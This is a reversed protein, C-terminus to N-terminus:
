HNAGQCRYIEGWKVDSGRYVSISRSDAPSFEYLSKLNNIKNQGIKSYAQCPPGGVLVDVKDMVDKLGLQDFASEVAMETLDISPTERLHLDLDRGHNLWWTRFLWDGVNRRM